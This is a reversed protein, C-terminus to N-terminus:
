PLKLKAMFTGSWKGIKVKNERADYKKFHFVIFDVRVGKLPIENRRKPPEGARASRARSTSCWSALGVMGALAVLPNRNSLSGAPPKVAAPLTVPTERSRKESRFRLRKQGIEADAPVQRPETRAEGLGWVAV